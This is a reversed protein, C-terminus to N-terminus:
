KTFIAKKSHQTPNLKAFHIKLTILGISDQQCRVLTQKRSETFLRAEEGKANQLFNRCSTISNNTFTQQIEITKLARWAYDEIKQVPWKGKLKLLGKYVINMDRGGALIYEDLYFSIFEISEATNQNLLRLDNLIIRSMYVKSPTIDFQYKKLLFNRYMNDADKWTNKTKWEELKPLIPFGNETVVKERQQLLVQQPSNTEPYAEFNYARDEFEVSYRATSNSKLTQDNGLNCGQNVMILSMLSLNQIFKKMQKFNYLIVSFRVEIEVSMQPM